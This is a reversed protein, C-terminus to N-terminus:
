ADDALHKSSLTIMLLQGEGGYQYHATGWETACKIWWRERAGAVQGSHCYRISGSQFAEQAREFMDYIPADIELRNIASYGERSTLYLFVTDLVQVESFRLLFGQEKSGAWYQDPMNEHTRDFAYVVEVDYMELLELVPDSKLHAGLLYTFPM